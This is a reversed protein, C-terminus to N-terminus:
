WSLVQQSACRRGIGSLAYVISVIVRIVLGCLLLSGGVLLLIAISTSRFM